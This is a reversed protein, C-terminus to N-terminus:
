RSGERGNGVAELGIGFLAVAGIFLAAKDESAQWAFPAAVVRAFGYIVGRLPAGFRM